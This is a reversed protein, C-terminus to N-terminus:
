RRARRNRNTLAPAIYEVINRFGIFAKATDAFEYDRSSVQIFGVVDKWSGGRIVKRKWWTPDSDKFRMKMAPSMDAINDYTNTQYPSSTWEAVNGSM